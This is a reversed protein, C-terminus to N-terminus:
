NQEQRTHSVNDPGKWLMRLIVFQLPKKKGETRLQLCGESAMASLIDWFQRWLLANEMITQLLLRNRFFLFHMQALLVSFSERLLRLTHVSIKQSINPLLRNQGKMQKNRNNATIEIRSGRAAVFPNASPVVPSQKGHPVDLDKPERVHCEQCECLM